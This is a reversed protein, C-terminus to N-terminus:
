DNPIAGRSQPDNALEIPQGHPTAEAARHWAQTLAEVRDPDTIAKLSLLDELAAVCREYYDSADDKADPQHLRAGLTQAWEAESFVGNAILARTLAFVQVEWPESFGRETKGASLFEPEFVDSLTSL